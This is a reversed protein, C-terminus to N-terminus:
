YTTTFYGQASDKCAGFTGATYVARLGLNPSEGHSSLDPNLMRRLFFPVSIATCHQAVALFKQGIPTISHCM